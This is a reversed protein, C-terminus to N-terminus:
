SGTLRGNSLQLVEIQCTLEDIEPEMGVPSSDNRQPSLIPPSYSTPPIIKQVGELDLGRMIGGTAPGRFRRFSSVQFTRVERLACLVDLFDKFLSVVTNQSEYLEKAATSIVDVQPPLAYMSPYYGQVLAGRTPNRQLSRVIAAINAPDENPVAVRITHASIRLAHLRRWGVTYYLDPAFSHSCM